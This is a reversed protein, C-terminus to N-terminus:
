VYLIRCTIKSNKVCGAIYPQPSRRNSKFPLGLAGHALIVVECYGERALYSGNLHQVPISNVQPGLASEQIQVFLLDLTKSTLGLGLKCSCCPSLLCM